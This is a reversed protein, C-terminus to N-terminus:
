RACHEALAEALATIQEASLWVGRHGDDGYVGVFYGTDGYHDVNLTDGDDDTITVVTRKM